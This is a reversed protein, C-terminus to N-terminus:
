IANPKVRLIEGGSIELHYFGRLKNEILVERVVNLAEEGIEQVVSFIVGDFFVDLAVVEPVPTQYIDINNLKYSVLWKSVGIFPLAKVEAGGGALDVKVSDDILVLNGRGLSDGFCFYGDPYGFSLLSKSFENFDKVTVKRTFHQGSLGPMKKLQLLDPILLNIGYEAFLVKAESLAKIELEKLPIVEEIGKDLCFALLEHAYSASTENPIINKQWKSDALVFERSQGLM